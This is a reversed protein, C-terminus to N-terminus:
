STVRPGSILTRLTVHGATPVSWRVVTRVVMADNPNRDLAVLGSSCGGVDAGTSVLGGLLGGSGLLGDLTASRGSLSCIAQTASGAGTIAIGMVNRGPTSAGSGSSSSGGGGSSSPLPECPAATTEGVGDAPDDVACSSVESDYDVNRRRTEFRASPQAVSNAVPTSSSTLSSPDSGSITNVLTSAVTTPAALSAYPIERAQELQERALGMANDRAINEGTVKNGTDLLPVVGLAGVVLIIM